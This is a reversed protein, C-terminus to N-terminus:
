PYYRRGHNGPPGPIGRGGGSRRRRFASVSRRRGTFRSRFVLLVLPVLYKTSRTGRTNRKGIEQLRADSGFDPGGWRTMETTGFTVSISNASPRPSFTIPTLSKSWKGASTSFFSRTPPRILGFISFIM